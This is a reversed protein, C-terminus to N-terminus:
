RVNNTQWVTFPAANAGAGVAAKNTTGIMQIVQDVTFVRRVFSDNEPRSPDVHSDVVRGGNINWCSYHGFSADPLFTIAEEGPQDDDTLKREHDPVPSGLSCALQCGPEQKLIRTVRCQVKGTSVKHECLVIAKSAAIRDELSREDDPIRKPRTDSVTVDPGGLSLTVPLRFRPVRAKTDSENLRGDRLWSVHSVFIVYEGNLYVSEDRSHGNVQVRWLHVRNTTVAVTNTWDDACYTVMIGTGAANTGSARGRIEAVQVCATNVTPAVWIGGLPPPPEVVIDMGPAHNLTLDPVYVVIGGNRIEWELGAKRLVCDVLDYTSVANTINVLVAIRNHVLTLSVDLTGPMEVDPVSAKKDRLNAPEIFLDCQGHVALFSLLDVIPMPDEYTSLRISFERLRKEVEADSSVPHATQGSLCVRSMAAFIVMLWVLRKM